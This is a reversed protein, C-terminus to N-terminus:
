TNLEKERKKTMYAAVFISLEYLGYVPVGILFQTIVDPPTIIAALILILVFAHRRYSKLTQDTILGIKAFFYVVIPLEFLLGIPITLNFLTGVFSSLHPANTVLQSVQYNGFFRIAFPALVFYGFCVGVIFLLSCVWVIGRAAKQEKKYLGPKIFQWVQNFVFPFAVIFGLYFSVKLSTFFQEGITRTELMIGPPQMCFRDGLSCFFQYTLFNENLPGLVIYHFVQKECIYAVIAFLVIAVLSKIIHTRLEELHDFFSMEKEEPAPTVETTKKTLKKLM